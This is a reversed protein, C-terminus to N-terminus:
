IIRAVYPIRRLVLTCGWSLLLAVVFVLMAKVVAYGPLDLLAYQLWIVAAYHVLYIGYANAALSDGLPTPRQVYRLMIAFCAISAAACFLVLYLGYLGLWAPPPLSLWGARRAIQTAVFGLYLLGALLPWGWPSAKDTAVSFRQLGHRGALIGSVFYVGYLGIRSAQVAFPGFSFWRAAGFLMLLPLFGIASLAVLSGFCQAPRLVFKGAGAPPGRPLLAYVAAAALDFLLLVGVFWAPGSPWPGRLVMATWFEGFGITAGTLLFSPYYALPVVSVVAVAFPMGLRWLRDRGYDLSGKRRLSPWVFLGSLLFMLPMFYSDSFLVILDFGLWKSADIVPASSWLYHVRDFHGFRTYALMSHHLVVLVVIGGRLYDFAVIRSAPVPNALRWRPPSGIQSNGSRRM